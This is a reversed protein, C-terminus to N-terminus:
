TTSSLRLYKQHLGDAKAQLEGLTGTNEIVDDAASLRQERSAQTALMRKALELNVGDRTLLRQLQTEIPCDVVLVRDYRDSSQTEVLLPAMHIQYPGGLTAALREQEARIAPHLIAELAKRESESSFVRERMRRRDLQGEADLVAPGFADVINQLAPQGPAVVARALQDADIVPIGLEAFRNAVATKGSAIGGTLGVRFPTRHKTSESM